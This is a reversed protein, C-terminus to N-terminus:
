VELEFEKDEVTKFNPTQNPFKKNLFEQISEFDDKSEEKSEEGSTTEKGKGQKKVGKRFFMKGYTNRERERNLRVSEKLREIEKLIREEQSNIKEM